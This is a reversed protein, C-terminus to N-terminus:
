SSLVVSPMLAKLFNMGSYQYRYPFLNGLVEDTCSNWFPEDFRISAILDSYPKVSALAIKAAGQDNIVETQGSNVWGGDVRYEIIRNAEVPPM